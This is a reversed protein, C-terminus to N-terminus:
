PILYKKHSYQVYQIKNLIVIKRSKQQKLPNYKKIKIHLYTPTSNIHCISFPGQSIYEGYCTKGLLM